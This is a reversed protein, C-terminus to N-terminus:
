AMPARITHPIYFIKDLVDHVYSLKYWKTLLILLGKSERLTGLSSLVGWVNNKYQSFVRSWVLSVFQKYFRSSWYFKCKMTGEKGSLFTLTTWKANVLFIVFNKKNTKIQSYTHFKIIGVFFRFRWLKRWLHFCCIFKRCYVCM